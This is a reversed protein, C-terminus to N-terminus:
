LLRGEEVVRLCGGGFFFFAASDITTTTTVQVFTDIRHNFNEVMLAYLVNQSDYYDILEQNNSQDQPSRPPSTRKGILIFCAEASRAGARKLDRDSLASGNVYYV